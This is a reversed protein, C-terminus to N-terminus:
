ALTNMGLKRIEVGNTSGTVDESNYHTTPTIFLEIDTAAGDADGRLILESLSIRTQTGDEEVRVLEVEDLAFTYVGSQRLNNWQTTKTEDDPIKDAYYLNVKTTDVAGSVLEGNKNLYSYTAVVSVYSDDQSASALNTNKLRFHIEENDITEVTTENGDADTQVQKDVTLLIYNTQAYAANYESGTVFETKAAEANPRYAAILTNAFLKAEWPTFTNTHGAGTYTVNKRSYIYYANLADNPIDAFNDGSMSYWCTVDDGNMNLQYSQDHTPSVQEVKTEDYKYGGNEDPILKGSSDTEYFNIDYPYTTIQGKNTQTVYTTMFPNMSGDGRPMTVTPLYKKGESESYYRSLTYRTYGGVYQDTETKASDPVYSISYDNDLMTQIRTDYYYDAGTQVKTKGESNKPDPDSYISNDHGQRKDTVYGFKLTDDTLEYIDESKVNTSGCSPCTSGFNNYSSYRCDRCSYETAVKTKAKEKISYTVGYRDLGCVDRLLNVWYGNREREDTNLDMNNVYDSVTHGTHFLNEFWEAIKGFKDLIWNAVNIGASLIVNNVFNNYVTTTDHTLLVSRGSNIFDQVAFAAGMNLGINTSLATNYYYSEKGWSDAFGMILMDFDDLYKAEDTYIRLTRGNAATGGCLTNLQIVNICKLIVLFDPVPGNYGIMSGSHDIYWDYYASYNAMEGSTDSPGYMMYITDDVGDNGEEDRIFWNEGEGLLEKYTPSNFICGIFHNGSNGSANNKNRIYEMKWDSPLIQIAKILTAEAPKIYCYNVYSDHLNGYNINGKDDTYSGNKDLKIIEIKWPLIGTYDSPLQRTVEYTYVSTKTTSRLQDDNIQSYGGGNLSQRVTLGDTDIEDPKFKGDSNLDVYLNLKFRAEDAKVDTPNQITFKVAITRDTTEEPYATVSGRDAVIKPASMKIYGALKTKYETDDGGFDREAFMNNNYFSGIGRSSDGNFAYQIFEYMYSCNDVATASPSAPLVFAKEKGFEGNQNQKNVLLTQIDISKGEGEGMFNGAASNYNGIRRENGNISLKNYVNDDDVAYLMDHKARDKDGHIKGLREGYVAPWLKLGDVWHWESTNENYTFQYRDCLDKISSKPTDFVLQGNPENPDDLWAKIYYDWDEYKGSDKTIDPYTNKLDNFNRIRSPNVKECKLNVHVTTKSVKMQNTKLTLKDTNEYRFKVITYYTGPKTSDTKANWFQAFQFRSAVYLKASSAADTKSDYFKKAVPDYFVTTIRGRDKFEDKIESKGNSYTYGIPIDDTSGEPIYHWEYDLSVGEPIEKDVYSYWEALFFKQKGTFWGVITSLVGGLNEVWEPKAETYTTKGDLIAKFNDNSGATLNDAFIVPLGAEMFTELQKEKKATLDNGSSRQKFTNWGELFAYTGLIDNDIWTYDDSVIGGLTGEAWFNRANTYVQDGTSAYYNGAMQADNYDPDDNLYATYQSGDPNTVTKMQTATNMNYTSDGIYVLDFTEAIDDVDAILENVAMTVIKVTVPQPNGSADTYYLKNESNLSTSPFWSYFQELTLVHRRERASDSLGNEANPNAGFNYTYNLESIAKLVGNKFVKGSTYPEIDLVKITDKNLIVRQGKFNLIYRMATAESVEDPLHPITNSRIFNEQNIERIVDYYPANLAYLSSTVNTSFNKNAMNAAGSTDASSYCYVFDSVWGTSATSFASSNKIYNLFTKLHPYATSTSDLVAKDYVTPIGYELFPKENGTQGHATLFAQTLDTSYTLATGDTSLGSSFVVLDFFELAGSYDDIQDPTIVTVIVSFRDGSEYDGDSSFEPTVGDLVRYKFWENSEYGGTYFVTDTYITSQEVISPVFKYFGRGRGVYTGINSSSTFYPTEGEQAYHYATDRVTRYPHDEDFVLSPNDDGAEDTIHGVFYETYLDLSISNGDTDSFGDVYYTGEFLYIDDEDNGLVDQADLYYDSAKTYISVGDEFPTGDEYYWNIASGDIVYHIPDFDVDYYYYQSSTDPQVNAKKLYVDKFKATTVGNNAGFFFAMTNVDDATTFTFSREASFTGNGGQYDGEFLAQNSNETYGIGWVVSQAYDTSTPAAGEVKYGFEYVTNPECAVYYYGLADSLNWQPAVSIGEMTLVGDNYEPNRPLEGAEYGHFDKINQYWDGLVFQNLNAESADGYTFQTPDQVYSAGAYPDNKQTIMVDSFSATTPGATTVGFRIGVHTVLPPITFNKTYTGSSSVYYNTDWSMVGFDNTYNFLYIQAGGKGSVDVTFTLTYQAGPTVDVTYFSSNLAGGSYLTYVDADAASYGEQGPLKTETTFDITFRRNSLTSTAGAKNFGNNTYHLENLNKFWEEIDFLNPLYYDESVTYDGNEAPIFRGNVGVVKEEANLNLEKATTPVNEWPYYETYEGKSELPTTNNTGLLGRATLQSFLTNVSSVREARTAKAKAENTWNATAEQGNDAYYGMAGKTADPAVELIRFSSNETNKKRKITEIYDLSPTDEDLANTVISAVSGLIMSVALIVATIKSLNNKEKM